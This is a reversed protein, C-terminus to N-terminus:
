RYFPCMCHEKLLFSDPGQSGPGVWMPRQVIVARLLCLHGEDVEEM